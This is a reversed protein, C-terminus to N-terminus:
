PSSSTTTKIFIRFRKRELNGKSEIRYNRGGESGVFLSVVTGLLPIGVSNNKKKRSSSSLALSFPLGLLSSPHVTRQLQEM